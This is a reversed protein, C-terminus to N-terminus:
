GHSAKGACGLCVPSELRVKPGRRGKTAESVDVMASLEQPFKWLLCRGCRKQKLGAKSQVDAWEIRDLYGDPQPDGPKYDGAFDLHCPQGNIKFSIGPM